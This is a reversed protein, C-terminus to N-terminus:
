IPKTPKGFTKCINAFKKAAWYEIKVEASHVDCNIWQAKCDEKNLM